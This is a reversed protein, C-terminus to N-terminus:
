RPGDALPHRELLLIMIAAAFGLPAIALFLPPLAAAYAEAIADQLVAPLTALHEPSVSTLSVGPSATTGRASLARALEDEIRAAFALGVISIGLTAGAQKFFNNAATAVGINEDPLANQALLTLLLVNTGGGAGMLAAALVIPVPGASPDILGMLLLGVGVAGAGLTPILIYRGTRAVAFGTLTSAIVTSLIMPLLLLGAEFASVRFVMQLFTPLYSLVVFTSVGAAITGALTALIFTRSRFLVGPLVPQAARREVLVLGALAVAGALMAGWTWDAPLTGSAATVVATTGACLLMMGGIDPAAKEGTPPSSPIARVSLAMAIVLLPVTGGFVWRWGPGDTLWGGVLVGSTTAVAWVSGLAGAYQARERSPVAAALITQALVMIAGGGVGQILRAIILADLNWAVLGLVTGVMFLGSAGLLLRKRDLADALAGTIPMSLTATLVFAAVIWGIRDLGGFEAIITPLAPNLVTQNFSVVLLSALLSVVLLRVSRPSNPPPM